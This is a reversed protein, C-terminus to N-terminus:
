NHGFLNLILDVLGEMECLMKMLETFPDNKGSIKALEKSLTTLGQLVKIITGNHATNNQYIHAVCYEFMICVGVNEALMCNLALRTKWAM